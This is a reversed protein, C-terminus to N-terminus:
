GQINGARGVHIIPRPTLEAAYGVAAVSNCRWKRVGKWRM